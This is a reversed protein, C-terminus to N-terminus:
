PRLGRVRLNYEEGGDGDGSYVYLPLSPIPSPFMKLLADMEKESLVKGEDFGSVGPLITEEHQSKTDAFSNITFSAVTSATLVLVSVLKVM